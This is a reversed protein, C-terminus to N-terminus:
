QFDLVIAFLSIITDDDQIEGIQDYRVKIHKNNHLIQELLEQQLVLYEKIRLKALILNKYFIFWDRITLENDKQTQMNIYQTYEHQLIQNCYNIRQLQCEQVNM